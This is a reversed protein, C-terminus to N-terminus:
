QAGEKECPTLTFVCDHVLTKAAEVIQERTVRRIGEIVDEPSRMTYPGQASYWEATASASDGASSLADILSLRTNEIMEDDFAGNKLVDLQHLIEKQAEELKDPSVGSDILIVGKHRDYRSSCYYCLSKEERVHVFLLSHPTGGLIACAMRMADCRADEGMVPTRLGMVLQCQNVDMKENEYRVTDKAPATVVPPLTMVNRAALRKAFAEKVAEGDGSGQYVIRIPATTLMDRWADTLEKATVAEVQEATGYKSVAYPEGECLVAKCRSVAYRRKDNIESAISELTCRREQEVDDRRFCGDEDLAPDFLVDLLLRACEAAVSEGHLAFRDDICSMTLNVIQTEGASSVFGDIMAGYLGDLERHFATMTDLRRCGRRLLFPLMAVAGATEKRLPLYISVSIRATTFRDDHLTLFSVGDAPTQVTPKM